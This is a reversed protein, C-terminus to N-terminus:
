NMKVKGIWNDSKNAFFVEGKSMAVAGMADKSAGMGGNVELRKVVELKGLRDEVTIVNGDMALVIQGKQNISMVMSTVQPFSLTSLLQLPSGFGFCLVHSIIPSPSSGTVYIRSSDPSIAISDLKNLPPFREDCLYIDPEKCDPVLVGLCYVDDVTFLFCIRSCDVSHVVKLVVSEADKEVYPVVNRLEKFSFTQLDVVALDSKGYIWVVKDKINGIFANRKISEVKQIPSGMDSSPRGNLRTFEEGDPNLLVLDNSGTEQALIHGSPTIMASHVGYRSLVNTRVKEFEKEASARRFFHLGEKNAVVLRLGDPSILLKEIGIMPIPIKSPSTAPQTPAPMDNKGDNVISGRSPPNQKAPSAMMPTSTIMPGPAPNPDGAISMQKSAISMGLQPTDVRDPVRPQDRPILTPTDSRPPPPMQISDELPAVPQRTILTPTSPSPPESFKNDLISIAPITNGDNAGSKGFDAYDGFYTVKFHPEKRAKSYVTNKIICIDMIYDSHVDKCTKLHILKGGHARLVIIHRVCGAIYYETGIMRRLKFPRGYNTDNVDLTSHLKMGSDVIITAFLVVEGYQNTTVGGVVVSKGTENSEICTAAVMGPIITDVPITQVRNDFLKKNYYCFINQKQDTVTIGLIIEADRNGAACIPNTVKGNFLWFDKLVEDVRMENLDFIYLNRYGCRLLWFHTDQSHNFNKFEPKSDTEEIETSVRYKEHYHGDLWDINNTYPQQIIIENTDEKFRMQTLRKDMKQNFWIKTAQSARDFQVFTLGKTGGLYVDSLVPHAIIKCAEVDLCDVKVTKCNEFFFRDNKIAVTNREIFGPDIRKSRPPRHVQPLNDINGFSPVPSLQPQQPTSTHLQQQPQQPQQPQQSTLNQPQQQPQPKPPLLPSSPHIPSSQSPTMAASQPLPSPTSTQAVTQPSAQPGNSQRSNILAPTPPATGGQSQKQVLDPTAPRSSQKLGPSQPQSQGIVPSPSKPRPPQSSLQNQQTSPPRQPVPSTSGTMTQSPQTQNLPPQSQILQPPQSTQVTPIPRSIVIPPPNMIMPPQSQGIYPQQLQPPQLPMSSIPQIPRINVPPKPRDQIILRSEEGTAMRRSVPSLDENRRPLRPRLVEGETAKTLESVSMDKEEKERRIMEKEIESKSSLGSIRPDVIDAIDQLREKWGRGGVGMEGQVGTKAEIERKAKQMVAHIEKLMAMTDQNPQRASLKPVLALLGLATSTAMTLVSRFAPKGWDPMDVFAEFEKGVVASM